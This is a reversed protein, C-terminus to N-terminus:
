ENKILEKISHLKEVIYDFHGKEKLFNKIMKKFDEMTLKNMENEIIGYDKDVVKNLFDILNDKIGNKGLFINKIKQPDEKISKKLKEKDILVIEDNNSRIGISYLKDILSNNFKKISDIVKSYIEFEKIRNKDENINLGISNVDSYNNFFAIKLGRKILLLGFNNELPMNESLYYNIKNILENYNNVLNEIQKFVEDNNNEIAFKANSIKNKISIVLNKINLTNLHSKYTQGNLEIEADEGYQAVNPFYISNNYPNEAIIELYHFINNDDEIDILIDGTLVNKLYLRNDEIYAYVGHELTGGDLENNSNDDEGEDLKYNHNIDEGWNIKEMIDYLSDDSSINITVGNIKPSGSLNLSEFIDFFKKSYVILSKALKKISIIYNGNETDDRPIVSFIEQNENEVKKLQFNFNNLFNFFNEAINNIKLLGNIKPNQFFNKLDNVKKLQFEYSNINKNYIEELKKETKYANSFFPANLSIPPLNFKQYFYIDRFFGILKAHDKKFKYVNTINSINFLKKQLAKLEEKYKLILLQNANDKSLNKIKLKLFLIKLIIEEKKIKDKFKAETYAKDPYLYGDKYQLTIKIDQSVEKNNLFAIYKNFNKHRLEHGIIGVISTNAPYIEIQGHGQYLLEDNM